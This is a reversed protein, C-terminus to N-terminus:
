KAKDQYKEKVIIYSKSAKVHYDFKGGKQELLDWWKKLNELPGVGTLDDKVAVQKSPFMEVKEKSVNSLWALLPTIGLAYIAMAAPDGQTTGEM